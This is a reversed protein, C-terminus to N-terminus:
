TALLRQAADRGAKFGDEHFGYGMWAGAFWTHQHGQLLPMHAQAKIAPLDFVPHAYEYEGMVHAPDMEHVPNLSVIVDQTFPLPQLRNLWYHLCVRTSETNDHAAREYNWAAWALKRKPMVSTDTHLVARNPHYRIAGLTAQEQPTPQDLMALSQDAHTALIVQDFRESGAQTFLTVGADDRAVRLVPTHLRQDPIHALIKEVYHRAGGTVTHWQPRNNVQILGHNHCFRIMTAVPFLLMQDTPCSWICGLMPLLYWDRFVDSFGHTVLFRDLPQALEDDLHREALATALTNFRVVDRLMRWFSPSILNSRQAFVTNLNAGNWELARGGKGAPVQVSFSMDSTATDVHLEKFLAILGPYTRENYVLFGTDVGHTQLGTATPLTVDVTHTHGGFYSGAEFLTIDAQGRLHHAASLGAIGSGVIAVRPTM